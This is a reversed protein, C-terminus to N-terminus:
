PQRSDAAVIVTEFILSLIEHVREAQGFLLLPARLLVDLLDEALDLVAVVGDGAPLRALDARVVAM